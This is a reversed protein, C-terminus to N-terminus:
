VVRVVVLAYHLSFLIALLPPVTNNLPPHHMRLQCPVKIAFIANTDHRPQTFLIHLYPWEISRIVDINTLTINVSEWVANFVVDGM